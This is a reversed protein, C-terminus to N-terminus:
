AALVRFVPHKAGVAVLEADTANADVGDFFAGVEVKWRELYPRLVAAKDADAVEEATFRQVSRGLHLEGGGAARINRVWQTTGRPAVLYEAEDVTLLNVPTSRWEGTKRGRVWLDRSGWISIGMRTLRRVLRNFVHRTFWGPELYRPGGVLLERTPGEAAREPGAASATTTTPISTM